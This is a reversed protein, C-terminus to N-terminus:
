HIFSGFLTAEKFGIAPTNKLLWHFYLNKLAVHGYVYDLVNSLKHSVYDTENLGTLNDAVRM